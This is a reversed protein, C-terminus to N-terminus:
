HRCRPLPLAAAAARQPPSPMALAARTCLPPLAIPAPARRQRQRQRQRRGAAWGGQTLAESPKFLSNWWCSAEATNAADLKPLWKLPHQAPM